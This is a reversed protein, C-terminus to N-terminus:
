AVLSGECGPFLPWMVDDWAAAQQTEPEYAFVRSRDLHLLGHIRGNVKEVDIVFSADLAGVLQEFISSRPVAVVVCVPALASWRLETVRGVVDRISRPMGGAAQPGMNIFVKQGVLAQADDNTVGSALDFECHVQQGPSQTKSWAGPM